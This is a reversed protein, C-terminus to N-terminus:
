PRTGRLYDTLRQMLQQHQEPDHYSGAGHPPSEGTTQPAPFHHLKRSHGTDVSVQHGRGDPEPYARIRDPAHKM